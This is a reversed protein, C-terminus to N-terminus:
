NAFKCSWLCLNGIDSYFIKQKCTSVKLEGKLTQNVKPWYMLIHHLYNDAIPYHGVVFLEAIQQMPIHHWDELIAWSTKWYSRCSSKVNHHGLTHIDLLAGVKQFKWESWQNKSSIAVKPLQHCSKAVKPWWHCSIAVKPLQHCSKSVSPHQQQQQPEVKRIKLSLNGLTLAVKPWRHISIHLM